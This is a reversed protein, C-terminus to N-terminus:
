TAGTTRNRSVMEAAIQKALAQPTPVTSEEKEAKPIAPGDPFDKSNKSTSGGSPYVCKDLAEIYVGLRGCRKKELAGQIGYLEIDIDNIM